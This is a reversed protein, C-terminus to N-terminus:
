LGAMHSFRAWQFSFCFSILLHMQASGVSVGKFMGTAFCEQGAAPVSHASDRLSEQVTREINIQQANDVLVALRWVSVDCPHWFLSGMTQFPNLVICLAVLFNLLVPCIFSFLSVHACVHVIRYKHARLRCPLQGAPLRPLSCVHGRRNGPM